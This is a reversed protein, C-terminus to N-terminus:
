IFLYTGFKLLLVVMKFCIEYLLSFLGINDNCKLVTSIVYLSFTYLDPLTSSIRSMDLSSFGTQKKGESAQLATLM